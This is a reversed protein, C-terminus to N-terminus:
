SAILPWRDQYKQTGRYLILSLSWPTLRSTEKSFDIVLPQYSPM